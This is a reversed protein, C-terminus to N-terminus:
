PKIIFDESFFDRQGDECQIIVREDGEYQCTYLEVVEYEQGAKISETFKGDKLCLAKM